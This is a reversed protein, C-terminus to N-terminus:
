NKITTVILMEEEPEKIIEQYPDYTTITTLAADSFGIDKIRKVLPLDLFSKDNENVDKIESCEVKKRQFFENDVEEDDLEEIMPVFEKMKDYYECKMEALTTGSSGITNKGTQVPNYKMNVHTLNRCRKLYYLQDFDKINNGELDLVTLHEIFGIDFLEDIENYSIYLEELQEFAQIGQVEKLECRGIHLVRVNKFSTGIDRFTPIISDNLKLFELSSM